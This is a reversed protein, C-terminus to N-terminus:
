DTAEERLGAEILSRQEPLLPPMEAPAFFRAEEIEASPRFSGGTVVGRFVVNLLSGNADTNVQWVKQLQVTLGAEECIERHLADIPQEGHEMFGTPLGWPTDPRYTHRFLLIHRRDDEIIGVVGVSFHPILLRRVGPLKVIREMQRRAQRPWPGLWIRQLLGRM